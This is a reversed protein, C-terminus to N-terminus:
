LLTFDVMTKFEKKLSYESRCSEYLKGRSVSYSIAVTNHRIDWDIIEKAEGNPYLLTNNPIIEFDLYFKGDENLPLPIKFKGLSKGINLFYGGDKKYEFDPSKLIEFEELKLSKIYTGTVVKRFGGTESSQYGKDQSLDFSGESTVYINKSEQYCEAIVKFFRFNTM